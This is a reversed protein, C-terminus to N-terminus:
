PTSAARGAAIVLPDPGALDSAIIAAADLEGAAGAALGVAAAAAEGPSAYLAVLTPGSGSLLLPRGLRGELVRRLESLEPQLWIAPKWLDNADRLDRALAALTAGDLGRNMRAALESTMTRASSRTSPRADHAAFVAGTSLRARPTVLLVGPDGAPAPVPVVEEGRGRVLAAPVGSAFFPVDSGLRAALELRVAAPLAVGWAESAAGLAAAADSSGGGLGAGVPVQKRLRFGLPPRPDGLHLRLLRAARLVLNDEAPCDIEGEVTLEDAALGDAAPEDAAAAAAAASGPGPLATVTLADALGIRLFVSELLHFGDARRGTVALTLNIKAPARFTRASGERV